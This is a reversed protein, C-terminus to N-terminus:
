AGTASYTQTLRDDWVQTLEASGNAWLIPIDGGSDTLDIRKIKWLAASTASGPVSSGIYKYSNVTDILVNYDVGGGLQEILDIVTSATMSGLSLNQPHSNGDSLKIWKGWVGTAIEFRIADGDNSPQDPTNSQTKKPAMHEVEQTEGFLGDSM